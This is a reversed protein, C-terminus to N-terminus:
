RKKKHSLLLFIKVTLFRNVMFINHPAHAKKPAHFFLPSCRRKSSLERLNRRLTKPTAKHTLHRRRSGLGKGEIFPTWYNSAWSFSFNLPSGDGRPHPNRKSLVLTKPSLFILLFLTRKQRRRSIM